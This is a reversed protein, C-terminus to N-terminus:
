ADGGDPELSVPEMVFTGQYGLYSCVIATYEAVREVVREAWANAAEIDYYHRLVSDYASLDLPKRNPDPKPPAPPEYPRGEILRGFQIRMAKLTDAEFPREHAHGCEVCTRLHGRTMACDCEEDYQQEVLRGKMGCAPCFADPCLRYPDHTM